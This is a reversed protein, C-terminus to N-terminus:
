NTVDLLSRATERRQRRDSWQRQLVRLEDAQWTLLETVATPNTSGSSRKGFIGNRVDFADGLRQAADSVHFGRRDAIEILLRPNGPHPAVGAAAADTIYRGVIVQAERWPIGDQITLSNALAFGGLYERRCVEYMRDPRFQLNELVLALLRLATRATEVINHLNATSEKSVEVTNSYPAAYQGIAVDVASANLHALKGRIREFIPYNKKQPMSASIGSLEDPLEILGYENGGWTMLDTVFRSLDVASISFEASMELALSRSAVATLAHPIPGTFGLSTAMRQRDWALEQGSMSGAGLASLDNDDYTRLWRKLTRLVHQALASFYFGPTIVQAAQLHTYGPMPLETTAAALRHAAEGVSIMVDAADAFWERAALAHATAQADNRSRDVHWAPVPASLRRQVWQEIALSVDSMNTNPDATLSTSDINKLLQSLEERQESTLVGLREYEELLVLEVLLYYPLMYKKDFELQPQLVDELLHQSPGRSLRGSM